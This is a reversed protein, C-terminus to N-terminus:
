GPLPKNCLSSAPAPRADSSDRGIHQCSYRPLLGVFPGPAAPPLPAHSGPVPPPPCAPPLRGGARSCPACPGRRRLRPFGRSACLAFGRFAHLLPPPTDGHARRGRHPYPACPQHRSTLPGPWIGRRM